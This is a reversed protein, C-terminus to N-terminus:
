NDLFNRLLKMKFFDYYDNKKKLIADIEKEYKDMYEQSM